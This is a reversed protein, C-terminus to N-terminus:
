QGNPSDGQLIRLAESDSIIRDCRYCEANVSHYDPGKELTYQHGKLFCLIRNIINM